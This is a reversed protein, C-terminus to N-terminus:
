ENDVHDAAVVTADLLGARRRFVCPGKMPNFGLFNMGM